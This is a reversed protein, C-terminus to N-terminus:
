KSFMGKFEEGIADKVNKISTGKCSKITVTTMMNLHKTIEKNAEDKALHNNFTKSRDIKIDISDNPGFFGVSAHLTNVSKSKKFIDAAVQAAAIHTATIYRRNYKDLEAITHKTQGEPLNAYYTGHTEKEKINTDAVELGEAINNALDQYKAVVDSTFKM